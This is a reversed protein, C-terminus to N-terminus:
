TIFVDKVFHEINDVYSEESFHSNVKVIANRSIDQYKDADSALLNMYCQFDEATEFLFGDVYHHILEITGGGKYAVVPIGKQMAEITVRGFGENRSFVLLIDIESYIKETDTVYGKFCVNHELKNSHIYNQIKKIYKREGNGYILLRFKSKHFLDEMFQIAELQRKQSHIFGVIGVNFSVNTPMPRYPYLIPALYIGNYIVQCKTKQYQVPLVVDHVIQSNFILGDSQNLLSRKLKDGLICILGYSSDGFERVHTIHKKNLLKACILGINEVSTNSYILDPNFKAIKYLLFPFTFFDLLLLIPFLIYKLNIKIYFLTPFFLFNINTIHNDSNIFENKFPTILMVQHSKKFHNIISLLSKNAGYSHGNHAIFLIRM